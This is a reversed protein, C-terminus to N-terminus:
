LTDEMYHAGISDKRALAACTILWGTTLMNWINLQETSLGIVDVEKDGIGFSEFWAKAEELQEEHRVIGVKETMMHQIESRGPLKKLFTKKKSVPLALLPEASQGNLQEGLLGGFVIGELLSNSALRNAGHVGQCAVEGVAYLHKITTECDENTKIGGMHFHAGPAVPILGVGLDIGHNQCLKTIAPFREPFNEIMSIDLYISEGDLIYSFLTRAVVDRPALDKMPHVGEMIKKGSATMLQAGEGRVAESILGKGEEGVYLLTPHFQIFELDQLQCGARYAMALGDGTITRNNSSTEYLGGVGGTALVTASAYYPIDEGKENRTMAGLCRGDQVILDTVLLNEKIHVNKPVNKLMTDVLIKGTQDGGAHLIRRKGHAGEKGLRLRNHSDRDVPFGKAIWEKLHVPGSKVMVEVAAENNLGCGAILTDKFHDEWCDGSSIAAAVGGQALVSNSQRVDKKTLLTVEKDIAKTAASLGAIGSGIILIDTQPM